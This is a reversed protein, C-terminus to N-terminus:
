LPSPFSPIHCYAYIGERTHEHMILSNFICKGFDVVVAPTVNQKWFM